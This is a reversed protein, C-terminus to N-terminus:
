KGMASTTNPWITKKETAMCIKNPKITEEAGGEGGRGKLLIRYTTHFHVSKTHFLFNKVDLNKEKEDELYFNWINWMKQFTSFRQSSGPGSLISYYSALSRRRKPGWSVEGMMHNPLSAGATCHWNLTSLHCTPFVFHMPGTAWSWLPFM